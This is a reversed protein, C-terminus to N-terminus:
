DPIMPYNRINSLYTSFDLLNRSNEYYVNRTKEPVLSIKLSFFYVDQLLFEIVGM